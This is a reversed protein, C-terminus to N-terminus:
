PLLVAILVVQDILNWGGGILSARARFVLADAGVYENMNARLLLRPNSYTKGKSKRTHRGIRNSKIGLGRNEAKLITITLPQTKNNREQPTTDFSIETRSVVRGKTM